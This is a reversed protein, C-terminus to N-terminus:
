PHVNTLEVKRTASKGVRGTFREIGKCLSEDAEASRTRHTAAHASTGLGASVARAAVVPPVSSRDLATTPLPAVAPGIGTSEVAPV